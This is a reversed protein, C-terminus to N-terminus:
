NNNENEREWEKINEEIEQSYKLNTNELDNEKFDVCLEKLNEIAEEKESIGSEFDNLISEIWQKLTRKYLTM